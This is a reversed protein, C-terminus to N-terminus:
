IEKRKNEVFAVMNNVSDLNEPLMEEEMVTFGFQQEIFLALELAGMSDIIGLQLLSADDAIASQDDSFLFNELIFGRVKQRTNAARDLHQHVAANAKEADPRVFTESRDPTFLM